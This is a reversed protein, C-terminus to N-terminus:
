KLTRDVLERYIRKLDGVDARLEEVLEEREGLMELSAEYRRRVEELEKELGDVKKDLARKEEVERMLNVVEGRAEDRQALLRAHEEKSSAKESELRRVAASMREVLQVSPGTAVTSASIVDNITRQPSSGQDFASDQDVINIPPTPPINAGNMYTLSTTSDQRSVSPSLATDLPEFSRSSGPGPPPLASTRRGSARHHPTEVPSHVFESSFTRSTNRRSHAAGFDPAFNKRHHSTPSETRFHSAVPTTNTIPTEHQQWRAKEEILRQQFESELIQHQRSADSKVNALARDSQETRAQLRKAESIQVELDQALASCREASSQLQDELRQSKAHVDRAKKRVDAERRTAEDRENELAAVRANLSGEITQWNEAALSYQTQLIEVQRLLKAQSDSGSDSTVEETRARLLEIRSELNSIESKLDHESVTAREKQREAEETVRRVEAAVRDAVLKKEIRASALEEQLEVVKRHEADLANTQAKRDMDEARREADALQQRLSSINVSAQDREGKLADLETEIQSLQKMRDKAQKEASAARRLKENAESEAQDARALRKQLDAAIQGQEGTKARLKRITNLHKLEMKSLKGGEEMLLAIREDKEALKQELSGSGATANAKKAAAVTEKALYQLKAQLADIRELNEHMEQQRQKEAKAYDEQMQAMEAKYDDVTKPPAANGNTPPASPTPVLEVKASNASTPNEFHMSPNIPLNSTLLTEAPDQASERDDSSKDLSATVGDAKGSDQKSPVSRPIELSPRSDLSTRESDARVAPSNTRSPVEFSARSGTRDNSVAKALREQLRDNVRNRSSSRSTDSSTRSPVGLSGSNVTARKADQLAKEAARTRASAESDEALITDLRSELGAVAGSLLSGWRSTQKPESPRAPM